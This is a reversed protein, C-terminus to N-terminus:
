LFRQVIPDSPNLTECPINNVFMLTQPETLVNYIIDSDRYAKRISRGNVLSKARVIHSCVNIGHNRSIHTDKNPRNEGLAGKEIFILHDDSNRMKTVKKIKYGNITNNTSDIQRDKPEYIRLIYIRLIYMRLIYIRLIRLIYIRLIYIRLITLICILM